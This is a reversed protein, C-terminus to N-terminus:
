SRVELMELLEAESLQKVGLKKAKELKSGADEGVVVFDTKSSVSSTVKGGSNQILSKAEDRKLTPLTGTLVFTKGVLFSSEVKEVNDTSDKTELTVGATELGAVLNQNAPVRFWQEVSQAIESGIGYVSEIDTVKAQGLQAVTPFKQTLLEANVSGVHRIGLGYLVRGWPQAKSTAIAEVLKSASKEGMRELTTLDEVTLNYLDAVSKVLGGNVLQQVLKEGLGNIDLAGRSAWHALSGRLIAPCSANICRTVAEDRPKIVPQSCEPCHTPMQFRKADTPRLEPLVRVVEPIIEGAKRVIVTDGIHLDLEALRDSNHLSARQVTTGALQVPKLEAVPTLAGTRGVQVTVAQVITPIEEAPYKLAIAWRPFKQTFGLKKQLPLYNLKVVVGDTLYPLNKREKDWFQYYAAVEDLSSCLKRNPNVKFGLKQLLELYEWQTSFESFESKNEELYLTYAFFDLRRQAVIKSDLQRLTGAAANRPNAFLTEGIKERETNINEFVNVSLFAEGRVEVIAPPNDIKLKLPISNITKVNQTIDEGMIGDGRTAGRILLGNEYTLALASGDIKLECVYDINGLDIEDSHSGNNLDYNQTKVELKQIKFKSNQSKWREQWSKLEQINFANELSYLPINHKVSVFKTAPKAGVRQTPSDPVILQPYQTELEQLERLLRDYVADEMIPNDLVYYAYGAEQLKGRLQQTYQEIEPTLKAM